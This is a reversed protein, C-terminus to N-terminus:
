CELLFWHMGEWQTENLPLGPSFCFAGLMVIQGWQQEYLSCRLRNSLQLSRSLVQSHPIEPILSWKKWNLLGYESQIKQIWIGKPPFRPAPPCHALTMVESQLPWLQFPTCPPTAARQFCFLTAISRAVPSRTLVPSKHPAKFTSEFFCKVACVQCFIISSTLFSM